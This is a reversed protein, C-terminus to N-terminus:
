ECWGRVLEVAPSDTGAFVAEGLVRSWWRESGDAVRWAHLRRTYLQLDYEETIGIAGHVAHAIAAVPTVADSARLKGIAARLRDPEGTSSDCALQAAVRAAAVHEAMESVQHQIAQFKGIARGFQQRDNAYQLTLDLVRSLAGALQVAHLCAGLTRLTGPPLRFAAPAAADPRPLRLTLDAHAGTPEARADAAPLLLCREGDQLLFWQAHRADAVLAAPAGDDFGALAIPGDPLAIGHAHLVARAFITQALPLPLVHRGTVFLVPALEPLPLAAGGAAEPLLCDAFGSDRLSQWLAQWAARPDAQQELARITAPTCCDRLLADLADSYANHM